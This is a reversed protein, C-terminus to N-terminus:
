CPVFSPCLHTADAAHKCATGLSLATAARAHIQSRSPLAAGSVGTTLAIPGKSRGWRANFILFTPGWKQVPGRSLRPHRVLPNKQQMACHFGCEWYLALRRAYYRLM